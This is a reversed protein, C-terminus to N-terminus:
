AGDINAEGSTGAERKPPMGRTLRTLNNLCLPVGARGMTPGTEFILIPAAM